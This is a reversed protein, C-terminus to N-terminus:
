QTEGASNKLLQQVALSINRYNSDACASMIQKLVRYPVSADGVITVSRGQTQERENLQPRKNALYTLEKKVAAILLSNNEDEQTSNSLSLAQSWVSRGQVLVTNNLVTILVNENPLKEAISVPLKIKNTTDLVSVESQNVILFFVLITFIDMLSVLNLKATNNFRKHRKARRQAIASQKM